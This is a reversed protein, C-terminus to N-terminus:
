RSRAPTVDLTPDFLPAPQAAAPGFGTLGRGRSTDAKVAGLDRPRFTSVSLRGTGHGVGGTVIMTEM